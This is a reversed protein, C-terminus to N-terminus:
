LCVVLIELLSDKSVNPHHVTLEKGVVLIHTIELVKLGAEDRSTSAPGLRIEDTIETPLVLM